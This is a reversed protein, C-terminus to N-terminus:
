DRAQQRGDNSEGKVIRFSLSTRAGIEQVDIKELQVREPEINALLRLGGGLVVPMVDIRLEDVLGARLLQQVVSAGGVVQVGKGGAATRAQDIASQVGDTVFTFTLREDQKPSTEPPHHTLVFIPVQFEYHRCVLRPRGDRVHTEGRRGENRRDRDGGDFEKRLLSGDIGESEDAISLEKGTIRLVVLHPTKGVGLQDGEGPRTRRVGCSREEVTVPNVSPAGGIRHSRVPCQGVIGGHFCDLLGEAREVAEVFGAREAGPELPDHDVAGDVMKAPSASQGDEVVLRRRQVAPREALRGVVIKAQPRDGVGDGSECGRLSGNDNESVPEVERDLLDGPHESEGYPGNGRAETAGQDLQSVDQLLFM